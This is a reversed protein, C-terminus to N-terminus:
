RACEALGLLPGRRVDWGGNCYVCFLTYALPEDDLAASATRTLLKYARAHLQACPGSRADCHARAQSSAQTHTPAQVVVGLVGPEPCNLRTSYSCAHAPRRTPAAPLPPPPHLHVM